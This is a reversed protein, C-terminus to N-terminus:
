RGPEFAFETPDMEATMKWYDVLRWPSNAIVRGSANKYWNGVGGHSWVMKRHAADVRENYADYPEPRCEMSAHGNELMERLCQLIYRVQCETHFIISGGHGLNTNPGYIMFFNPFGPATMGLHARPDDEGWRDRLSEGGRGEIEMPWLVRGAQFGTAFVIIDAPHERGDKTVIGTPVVRDIRDNVLEVNPRKLTKYWNNDRLMRKGYPPYAPITKALLEPDDGIQDRIHKELMDRFGQNRANLSKEPTPWSPDIQLSDHLGDASAWFLQFRYWKDYFPINKLAWKKGDEVSRHYNPNHVSWHPTRQFITLKEVDAAISPGAQMGSAGTGIMAVRKGKLDAGADWAGTHFARGAFTALGPIDPTFPRNLQGVATIVANAQVTREVGDAGKITVQWRASAEDYRAASVETDFRVHRRIDYRDACDELYRWLEDRKSFHHTWDHNPEFSFSFFHNPTDVGCGPYTNEFWTGGVTENKEYITFPIGMERLKIAVGIGSLGAGIIVVKFASLTEPSPRHRWDVTRPDRDHVGMEELILPIYEPSVKQGVGAEMMRHLLRDDPIGPGNREGRAYDQLALVLRDRVKAKLGAPVTEMFNWPGNIFPAVEDLIAEDGTLQVLVMLMPAIDASELAWRLRTEDEVARGFAALLGSSHDM